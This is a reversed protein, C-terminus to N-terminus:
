YGNTLAIEQLTEAKAHFLTEPVALERRSTEITRSQVLINQNLSCAQVLRVVHTGLCLKSVLLAIARRNQPKRCILMKRGTFAFLNVKKVCGRHGGRLPSM